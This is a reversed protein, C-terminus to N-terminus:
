SVAAVASAQAIKAVRVDPSDLLNLLYVSVFTFIVEDVSGLLTDLIVLLPFEPSYRSVVWLMRLNNKLVASVKQHEKKEKKPKNQENQTQEM